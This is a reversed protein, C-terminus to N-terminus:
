ISIYDAPNVYEGNYSIGFHLHPGTSGGTSGCYGIIQGASVYQGAYVIYHTMHMYISRYGDGHNLQVYYGAGGYEYAAVSVYGSRTAYIPTGEPAALDVGKHMKWEGSLPHYRYGFPSSFYTYSIPLLWTIGSVTNGTGAAPPKPKNQQEQWYKADEYEDEAKALRDALDDQKAESEELLEEFEKGRAVLATLLSDAEQRKGELTRQTTRLSDRTKQLADKETELASKAEEVADAALSIQELRMRDAEAIERIMRLRDLLDTFSNAKFLVSWYSIRSNKEMARIRTKNQEQLQQLYAQAADLQDQKDAILTSYALIQENIITTQTHLIFIEQDILSKQEVIDEMETLNDSLQQRLGEMEEDLADQEKQLEDLKDKADSVKDAAVAPALGVCLALVLLWALWRKLARHIDM